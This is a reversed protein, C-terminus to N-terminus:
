EDAEYRYTKADITMKLKGIKGTSSIEFNHLTVIRPLASVESIFDGLAHFDGEVVIKIPLESYFDLKNENELRISKEVLNSTTISYSLDELLGDVETDKPLQRLLQGFTEQMESMQTRYKELNVAKDWQREFESKLGPEKKEVEALSILQPETDLFYVAAFVAVAVVLLFISKVILPWDGMNNFDVENIDFDSLSSM